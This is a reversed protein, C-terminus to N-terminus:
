LPDIVYGADVAAGRKLSFKVCDMGFYAFVGLQEMGIRLLVKQSAINEPHTLGIIETLPFHAFGFQVSCRATERALHKGWCDHRLLYGVETEATEPLYQLGCWGVLGPQGRLELAWWGHGHERWHEIQRQIIREVRPLDPAPPGPFYQLINEENLIAHLALADDPTFGRLIVRETELVPVKYEM